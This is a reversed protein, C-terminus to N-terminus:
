VLDLLEDLSRIVRHDLGAESPEEQFGGPVREVRVASMGVSVAGDCYRAQDDVFLAEVPEVGLRGLAALYIGRDPKAMRVEFSLIVADVEDEFGLRDVIPRTSHSCNSVIGTRVARRRLERLLPFSDEFVHVGDTLFSRELETLEAVVTPDDAVGAERLTAAMDGEVGEFTGVSRAARTKVFARVLDSEEVGLREEFMGRLSPWDTWVLTEYLDLLVARIAV